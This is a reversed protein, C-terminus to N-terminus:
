RAGKNVLDQIVSKVKIMFVVKAKRVEGRQKCAKLYCKGNKDYFFVKVKM